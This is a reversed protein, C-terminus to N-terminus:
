VRMTKGRFAIKNVDVVTAFEPPLMVGNEFTLLCFGSVWNHPNEETYNMFQKAYVNALCGTEIGWRLGRYDRIHSAKQHHLHGTVITVGANLTNNHAAHTGGKFRHKVAVDDNILSLWCCEWNPFHDKLHIGKILAYEPSHEAIRTEFRQDHNGIPWIKRVGPGGAQEIDHLIDQAAELEAAPLPSEEWGIPAHRSIRPFDCVDGNLYIAKPGHEKIFNIFGRM